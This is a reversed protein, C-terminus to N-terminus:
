DRDVPEEVDRDIGIQFFAITRLDDIHKQLATTYEENPRNKSDVIKKLGEFLFRAVDRALRLNLHEPISQGERVQEWEVVTIGGPGKVFNALHKVGNIYRKFRIDVYDRMPQDVIDVHIEAFRDYFDM